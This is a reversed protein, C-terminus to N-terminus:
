RENTAESGGPVPQYAAQDSRGVVPVWSPVWHTLGSARNATQQQTPQQAAASYGMEAEDAADESARASRSPGSSSRSADTINIPRAAAVSRGRDEEEDDDDDDSDDEIVRPEADGFVAEMEELAVGKTEPYTFYVLVLSFLCFCGHMAYLRYGITDMLVPTVEGVIYNFFWNTATSLSAGKARFSLPMIEPPYLWPIPGFSYGHSANFLIVCVVVANATYPADLYLFGATAFLSLAGLVAGSILIPRRGWADVLYWPPVSSAIYFLANIGAMLIANRGIWGAALFVNPAYYSIM